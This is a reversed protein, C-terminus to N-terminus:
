IYLEEVKTAAVWNALVLMALIPKSISNRYTSLPIQVNSDKNKDEVLREYIERKERFTVFDTTEIDTLLAAEIKEVITQKVTKASSREDDGRAM